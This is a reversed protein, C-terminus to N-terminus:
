GRKAEYLKKDASNLLEDISTKGDYLAIGISMEINFDDRFDINDFEKELAKTIELAIGEESKDTIIVFEDGGIRFVECDFRKAVRSLAEAVLVLARDGEPHGWTDNISKFKDLDCAIIYFSDTNDRKYQRLQEKLEIDMGYRNYLKTLNDVRIKNYQEIAFITIAMFTVAYTIVNLGQKLSLFSLGAAIISIPVRFFTKENELLFFLALAFGISSVAFCITQATQNALFDSLVSVLIGALSFIYGTTQRKTIRSLIKSKFFFLFAVILLCFWKPGTLFLLEKM